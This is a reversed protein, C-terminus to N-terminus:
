GNPVWTIAFVFGTITYTAVISTLYTIIYTKAFLSPNKMINTLTIIKKYRKDFTMYALATTSGFMLILYLIKFTTILESDEHSSAGTISLLVPKLM